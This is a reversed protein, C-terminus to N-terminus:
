SLVYGRIRSLVFQRIDDPLNEAESTFLAAVAPADCDSDVTLVPSAKRGLEGKGEGDDVRMHSFGKRATWTFAKEERGKDYCIQFGTIEGAESSWVILDMTASVFWRRKDEGKIQRTQSIEKLPM